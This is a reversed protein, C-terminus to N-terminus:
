SLPCHSVSVRKGATWGNRVGIPFFGSGFAVAALFAYYNDYVFFM